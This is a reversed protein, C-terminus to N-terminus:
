QLDDDQQANACWFDRDEEEKFGFERRLRYYVELAGPYAKRLAEKMQQLDARNYLAAVTDSIFGYVSPDSAYQQVAWRWFKAMHQDTPDGYDEPQLGAVAWPKGLRFDPNLSDQNLGHGCGLWSPRVFLRGTPRIDTLRHLGSVSIRRM